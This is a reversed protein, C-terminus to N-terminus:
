TIAGAPPFAKGRATRNGEGDSRTIGARDFYELVEIALNRGIGSRDRFAGATFRGDDAAQSLEEAFAALRRVQGASFFRKDSVQTM